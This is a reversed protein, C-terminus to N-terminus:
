HSRASNLAREEVRIRGALLVAFVAVSLIGTVAARCMLAVGVLEGIIRLYNPHRMFRYPGRRILSSSPPVLVRFTWRAGLTAVAWYKVAKGLFFVLLGLAFVRNMAVPRLGAAVAMTLFTAPYVIQMWHYVDDEPEVAGAARLARAHRTSLVAEFLMPVFALVLVILPVM